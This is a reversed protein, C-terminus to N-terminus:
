REDGLSALALRVTPYRGLVRGGPDRVAYGGLDRSVVARIRDSRESLVTWTGLVEDASHNSSV